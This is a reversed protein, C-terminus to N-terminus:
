NEPESVQSSCIAKVNRNKRKNQTFKRKHVYGSQVGRYNNFGGRNYNRRGRGRYMQHPNPYRYYNQQYQNPRWQQRYRKPYASRGTVMYGMFANNPQAIPPRPSVRRAVDPFETLKSLVADITEYGGYRLANKAEENVNSKFISKKLSRVANYEATETPRGGNQVVYARRVSDTMTRLESIYDILNQNPRRDFNELSDEYFSPKQKLVNASVRRKILDITNDTVPITDLLDGTTRARILGAVSARLAINAANDAPPLLIEVADCQALFAPLLAENRGDYRDITGAILKAFDIISLQAMIKIPKSSEKNHPKEVNKNVSKVTEDHQESDSGVSHSTESKTSDSPEPTAESNPNSSESKDTNVSYNETENLLSEKSVIEGITRPVKYRLQLKQFAQQVRSRSYEFIEDVLLKDAQKLSAYCIKAKISLENFIKIISNEIDILTEARKPIEGKLIRKCQAQLDSKLDILARSM